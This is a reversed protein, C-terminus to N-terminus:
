DCLREVATDRDTELGSPLDGGRDHIWAAIDQHVRERQLDRTLMHWGEPYLVFRWNVDARPPLKELLRCTPTPPIVEDNEGYLILTDGNLRGTAALGQDMLNGLGYIADIRTEKIVLPDRGWERLMEMDDSPYISLGRPSVTRTPAVRVAIALAWRQYWPMTDRSWVAPAVLITGDLEPIPGGALVTMAVAGGMSKGLLYLPQDPYRARLEGLVQRVDRGMRAEGHWRGRGETEGFGRQDIAVTLIDDALLGNALTDFAMRYDNFGHLALVVATPTEEPSWRQLPLRFGDDMTIADDQLNPSAPGAGSDEPYAPLTCGSVLLLTAVFLLIGGHHRHARGAELKNSNQTVVGDAKRGCWM